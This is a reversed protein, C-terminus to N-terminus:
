VRLTATIRKTNLFIDLADNISKVIIDSSILAKSSAGENEIIVIGLCADKIMLRDNFGNGIAATIKSGLENLFNLKEAAGENSKLKLFSVNLNECVEKATGFTDATLVHINVLKSLENIRKEVGSILQGDVAITGNFDILINEICIKEKGPV